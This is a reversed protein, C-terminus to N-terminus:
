GTIGLGGLFDVVAAACEVPKEVQLLHGTGPIAAYDYGGERHLAFNAQATPPGGKRAPDAGILKVPGGYEAAKPWLDLDLAARYIRAELAPPCVLYWEDAAADRRLVARAMQEHAGEFWGGHARTAAYEGALEAPDHFRERRSRAWDELRREFICMPEYLPHDPPPVNPPDFLVLADWCWGIEIAQKMAARGSMSHFIGVSVAPGLTATMDRHIRDLDRAMQAYTHHDPDSRANQGHNRMDFVLVEFRELFGQWFSRYGDIAFGNGHSIYLRPAATRGYRRIHILAGDDMIVEHTDRPVPTTMRKQEKLQDIPSASCACSASGCRRRGPHARLHRV